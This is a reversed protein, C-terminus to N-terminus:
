LKVALNETPRLLQHLIEMLLLLGRQLGLGMVKRLTVLSMSASTHWNEKVSTLGTNDSNGVWYYTAAFTSTTFSFFFFLSLFVLTLGKKHNKLTEGQNQLWGFFGKGFPKKPQSTEIRKKFIRKM